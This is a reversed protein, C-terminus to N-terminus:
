ADSSREQPRGPKVLRAALEAVGVAGERVVTWSGDREYRCLDLVTSAIGPLEGGDLVLDAGARISSAVEECRRADPEGTPNASSQLLARDVTELASLDVPLLPVRLGVTPAGSVGDVGGGLAFRAEPDELVVTLPGPLLDRLVARTRPGVWPVLEFARALTFVMLGLPRGAPRGKLALLRAVAAASDCACGLGYVTDAPFVAVGDGALCRELRRADARTLIM